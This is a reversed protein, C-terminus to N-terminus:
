VASLAVRQIHGTGLRYGVVLLEGLSVGGCGALGLNNLFKGHLWLAGASSCLQVIGESVRIWGSQTQYLPWALVSTLRIFLPHWLTQKDRLFVLATRTYGRVPKQCRSASPSASVKKPLTIYSIHFKHPQAGDQQGAKRRASASPFLLCPAICRPLLLFTKWFVMQHLALMPAKPHPQAPLAAPRHHKRLRRQVSSCLAPWWPARHTGSATALQLLQAKCWKASAAIQFCM